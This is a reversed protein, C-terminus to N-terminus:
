MVALMFLPELQVHFVALLDVSDYLGALPEGERFGSLRPLLRVWNSVGVVLRSTPAICQDTWFVISLQSTLIDKWAFAFWYLRSSSVAKEFTCIDVCPYLSWWSYPVHSVM